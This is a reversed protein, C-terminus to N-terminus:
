ADYFEVGSSIMGGGHAYLVAAGSAQTKPCYWRLRLSADRNTLTFDKTIVQPHLTRRTAVSRYFGNSFERYGQWDGRPPPTPAPADGSLDSLAQAVEPDISYIM